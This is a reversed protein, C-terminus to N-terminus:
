VRSELSLSLGDVTLCVFLLVSMVLLVTVCLTLSPSPWAALSGELAVLAAHWGACARWCVGDPMLGTIKAAPPLSVHSSHPGCLPHNLSM